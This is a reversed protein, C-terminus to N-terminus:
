CECWDDQGHCAVYDSITVLNDFWLYTVGTYYKLNERPRSYLIGDEAGTLVPPEFFRIAEMMLTSFILSSPVNATVVLRLVSTGLEVIRTVRIISVIREESGDSSVLAVRRLM